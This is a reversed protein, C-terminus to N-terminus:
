QQQNSHNLSSWYKTICTTDNFQSESEWTSDDASYHKWHVLYEYSGPAGRHKLIKFVTFTNQDKDRASKSVIKLQDIPVHRDLIDGDVDRLVYAGNRARRVIIYPGVYKPEFKNNRTPDKLMVTSGTTISSPLLM